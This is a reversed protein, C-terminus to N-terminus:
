DRGQIRLAKVRQRELISRRIQEFLSQPLVGYAFIGPKGPITRLDYGPWSFQNLEDLRLWHRGGDLGLSRCVTPPLELSDSPDGPPAHTVPAVIVRLDGGDRRPAAIVIACPRDKSAEQAGADEEHSWLFAYRIM